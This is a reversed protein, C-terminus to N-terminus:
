DKTEPLSSIIRETSQIHSYSPQYQLSPSLQLRKYYERHKEIATQKLHKVAIDYTKILEKDECRLNIEWSYPWDDTAGKRHPPSNRRYVRLFDGTHEANMDKAIRLEIGRFTIENEVVCNPFMVKHGIVVPKESMPFFIKVGSVEISDENALMESDNPM